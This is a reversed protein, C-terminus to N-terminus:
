SGLASIHHFQPMEPGSSAPKKKKKMRDASKISLLLMEQNTLSHKEFLNRKVSFESKLV